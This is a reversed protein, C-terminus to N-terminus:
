IRELAMGSREIFVGEWARSAYVLATAGGFGGVIGFVFFGAGFSGTVQKLSGLLNPLLFGGFGGAARDRWDHGRDGGSVPEPCASFGRRQGHGPAGDGRVAFSDDRGPGAAVLGRAGRRHWSLADDVDASGGAPGCSPGGGAAPVLRGSCLADHFRRGPGQEAWVREPLIRESFEGSRCVRRVHDLLVASWWTDRMRLVGAYDALSRRMGQNPSDKALVVFLSLTALLPLLAIGFVAHWGWVEALRPGALTALATGSNGAGAIGMALGQYRAPYWRSALPPAAAFSAGSVGLLLGVLLLQGFHGAWLWGLVLPITTLCMWFAPTSRGSTIPWCGLFWVYCLAAM